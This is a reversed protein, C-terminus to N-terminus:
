RRLLPLLEVDGGDLVWRAEDPSPAIGDLANRTLHEYRTSSSM